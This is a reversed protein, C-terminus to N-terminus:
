TEANNRQPGIGYVLDLSSVVYKEGISVILVLRCNSLMLVFWVAYSVIDGNLHLPKKEIMINCFAKILISM